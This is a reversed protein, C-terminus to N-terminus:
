RCAYFKDCCIIIRVEILIALLEHENAAALMLLPFEGRILNHTVVSKYMKVISTISRILTQASHLYRMFCM